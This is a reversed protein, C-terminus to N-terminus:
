NEPFPLVGGQGVQPAFHNRMSELEWLSSEVARTRAPDDVGADFVDVCKVKEQGGVGEAGMVAEVEVEVDAEEQMEGGDDEVGEEGIDEVELYFDDDLADGSADVPAAGKREVDVQGALIRKSSDSKVGM